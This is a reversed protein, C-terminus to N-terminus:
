SNFNSLKDGKYMMVSIGLIGAVTKCPVNANDINADITHRPISGFAFKEARAIEAGNIRGAIVIKCGSIGALKVKDMTTKCVRRVAMGKKLMFSIEDATAKSSTYPNKVESIDIITQSPLNFKKIIEEKLATISAGGKGIVVGPKTVFINISLKKVFRKIIVDVLGASQLKAELYRRIEMDGKLLSAYDKKNAFWVSKAMQSSDKIKSNTNTLIKRARFLNVSIKNGM